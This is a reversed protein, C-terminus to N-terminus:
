AFNVKKCLQTIEEETLLKAGKLNSLKEDLESLYSEQLISQLSM